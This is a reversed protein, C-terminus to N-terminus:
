NKVFLYYLVGTLAGGLHAGHGIPLGGGGTQTTLGWLDIGIFALAGWIAPLPIIGFLFLKHKPFCFSFVLVLGAIAGSAGLAAEAPRGLLFTSFLCHSFSSVIGAMVYFIFFSFHGMLHEMPPGFSGLVIMNIMLHFLLKHSFVPTLVTWIRGDQLRDGSVLFNQDMFQGLGPLFIWAAFVALNIVILTRSITPNFRRPMVSTNM